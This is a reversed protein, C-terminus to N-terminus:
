SRFKKFLKMAETAVNAATRRTKTGVVDTSGPFIIHVIGPPIEGQDIGGRNPDSNINLANAVMISGEGITMVPGFDGYIVPVVRGNKYIVVGLDGLSAGMMELSRGPFHLISGDKRKAHTRPIVIFPYARSDLPDGAADHMSTDTQGTKDMSAQPAKGDADIALKAEYYLATVPAHPFAYGSHKVIDTYHNWDEIPEAGDWPVGADAGCEALAHNPMKYGGSFAFAHPAPKVARKAAARRIPARRPRPAGSPTKGITPWGKIGLAVATNTGAIGDTNDPGFQQKQFQIIALSTFAGCDSDPVFSILNRARLAEQLRRVLDGSSGFRILMPRALDPDTAQAAVESGRLLLYPFIEQDLAYAVQRFVAWAGSEEHNGDLTKPFGVVVQCGASSYGGAVGTSYAAHLNDAQNGPDARDFFDFDQDDTNRLVVREEEQRFARHGRAPKAANHIGKMYNYYGTLLQNASAGGKGAAAAVAGANPCTSGPYVALTGNEPLWQGLTCRPNRYNVDTLSLEHANRFTHNEPDLPLCGRLGFFIMGKNPVEFSNRRCLASLLKSSLTFSM